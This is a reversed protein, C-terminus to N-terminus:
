KNLVLNWRLGVLILDDHVFCRIQESIIEKLKNLNSKKFVPLMEVMVSDELHDFSVEFDKKNLGDLVSLIKNRIAGRQNISFLKLEHLRKEDKACYDAVAQFYDSNTLKKGCGCVKPQVGTEDNFGCWHVMKCKPCCAWTGGRAEEIDLFM